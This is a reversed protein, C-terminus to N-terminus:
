EVELHQLHTLTHMPKLLSSDGLSSKGTPDLRMAEQYCGCTHLIRALSEVSNVPNRSKWAFILFHLLSELGTFPSGTTISPEEKSSKLQKTFSEIADLSLHNALSQCVM